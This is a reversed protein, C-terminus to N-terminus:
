EKKRMEDGVREWNTLYKKGMTTEAKLSGRALMYGETFIYKAALNLRGEKQLRRVSVPIKHARLIGFRYGTKKARRVYDHDEAFVVREDFGRIAEHAERHIFICFGPAHPLIRETVWTYVNYASHLAHDVWSGDHAHVRCTAVDLRREEMEALSDKLFDQHPLIVDADFFALIDGQALAAGRNRGVSPLGGEVVKAGSSAAIERTRDASGADAIIVEDDKLSQKQISSLLYPLLTEENKTPVIISLRM